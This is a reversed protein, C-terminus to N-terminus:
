DMQWTYSLDWLHVPMVHVTVEVVRGDGNRAAHILEYVRADAPLRLTEQEQDTPVRVQITETVSTQRNPTASLRSILGGPGSDAEALGTSGAVDQPLYTVALQVPTDNAFMERSRTLVPSGADVGLLEAVTEPAPGEGPETTWRPQLGHARIEADFAGRAGNAERFATTYRTPVDRRITPIPQVIAVKGRRILVGEAMLHSIAKNVLARSSGLETSLDAETPLADGPGHRAVFARLARITGPLNAKESTM